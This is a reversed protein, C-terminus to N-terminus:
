QGQGIGVVKLHREGWGTYRGNEIVVPTLEDPTIDRDPEKVETVYYLVEIEQPTLKLAKALLACYNSMRKIHDATDEDKYEAAIVLRNITDM